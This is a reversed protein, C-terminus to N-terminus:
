LLLLKGAAAKLCNSLSSSESARRAKRADNRMSHVVTTGGNM